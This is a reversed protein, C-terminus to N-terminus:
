ANKSFVTKGDVTLSDIVSMIVADVPTDKTQNTQRASSGSCTLVLDGVGADVTDVAVFPKGQPAGYEDTQRVIMLKRGVLREDKITSVTNGIVRAILM